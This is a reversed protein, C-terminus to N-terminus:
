KIASKLWSELEGNKKMEILEEIKKDKKLLGTEYVKLVSNIGALSGAYDNKSYDNELVYKTWGGMFTILLEPNKKTFVLVDANLTLTVTPSNTIWVFLLANLQERKDAQENFPTNELWNVTNIVRQESAKFEAETEPLEELLDNTQGFTYLQSFVACLFVLLYHQKM